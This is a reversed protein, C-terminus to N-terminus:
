KQPGPHLEKLELVADLILEPQDLQISHGSNEAIVQKGLNSLGALKEQQDRHAPSMGRSATLVTLRLNGPFPAARVEAETFSLSDFENRESRLQELSSGVLTRNRYAAPLDRMGSPLAEDGQYLRKLRQWGLPPIMSLVAAGDIRAAVPAAASGNEDESSADVLVVANV